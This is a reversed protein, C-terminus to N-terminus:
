ESEQPYFRRLRHPSVGLTFLTFILWNNALTRVPGYREFRRASTFVPPSLVALRGHMRLRRIFDLDELIPWEKFGGIAEFARRSAFQAQDGLPTHTLRTRLNVMSSGFRYVARPSDFRVLFGGGVFGTELAARVKALADENPLLTDAHLFLFADADSAAAGANLQSGRGKPGSVVRAGFRTAIETTADRSGGDAVILEDASSGIAPLSRLLSKEEDLTPIVVGIRPAAL